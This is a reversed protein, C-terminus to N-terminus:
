QGLSLSSQCIKSPVQVCINEVRSHQQTLLFLGYDPKLASDGSWISNFAKGLLLINPWPSTWVYLWLQYKWQWTLTSDGTESSCDNPVQAVDAFFILSQWQLAGQKPVMESPIGEPLPGSGGPCMSTLGWPCSIIKCLYEGQLLCSQPM